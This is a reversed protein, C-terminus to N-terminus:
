GTKMCVAKEMFEAPLTDYLVVANSMTQYFRLRREQAPLLNCWSVTNQLHKWTNQYHAIGAQSLDCFTERLGRNDDMPDM